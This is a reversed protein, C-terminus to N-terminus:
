SWLSPRAFSFTIATRLCLEISATPMRAELPFSSLLFLWGFTSETKFACLTWCGFGFEGWRRRRLKSFSGRRKLRMYIRRRYLLRLRWILRVIAVLDLVHIDCLLHVAPQALAPQASEQVRRALRLLAFVISHVLHFARFSRLRVHVIHPQSPTRHLPDSCTSHELRERCDQLPLIGIGTRIGSHLCPLRATGLPPLPSQTSEPFKLLSKSGQMHWVKKHISKPIRITTIRMSVRQMSLVQRHGDSDGVIASTARDNHHCEQM